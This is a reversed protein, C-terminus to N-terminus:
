QSQNLFRMIEHVFKDVEFPKALYGTAGAGKVREENQLTDYGTLAFIPVKRTPPFSRIQECVEFGTMGPIMLDLIVLDWRHTRWLGRRFDDGHTIHVIGVDPLAGMLVTDITELVDIDDEIVLIWPKGLDGM